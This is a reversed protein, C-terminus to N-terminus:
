AFSVLLDIFLYLLVVSYFILDTLHLALLSCTYMKFFICLIIGVRVHKLDRALAEPNCSIYVIDTYTGVLKRTVHDLGCRPPDVLVGGFHQVEGKHRGRDALYCKKRLIREAFQGSDCPVICVNKLENAALNKEAAVCLSKNIEVSM